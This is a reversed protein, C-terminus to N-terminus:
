FWLYWDEGKSMIETLTMQQTAIFFKLNDKFNEENMNLEEAYIKCDMADVKNQESKIEEFTMTLEKNTINM